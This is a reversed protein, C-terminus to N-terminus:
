ALVGRGVKTRALKEITISMTRMGYLYDALLPPLKGLELTIELTQTKADVRYEVTEIRFDSDVNENPLTVHIKDAALPPTTGYDIVTSTLTLSEAPDKLYALLAKARLNCENDSTLEEDTETLERLGYANQSGTDESTGTYSCNLFGFDGDWFIYSTAGVCNMILKLGSIQNWQPNGVKTWIGNPNHNADYMQSSGLALSILGWQLICKGELLSSINAQFYNASDPAFLIIYGYGGGLNGPMWAWVVFTQPKSLPDLTRYISAAGGGGPTWVRLCHSGERQRLSELELTGSDCTWGDLSESWSDLNAPFNKGQCGYVRIRNRIRLIDKRYESDEIKESLSVPSTKSNKPFFEFKGDPAVRFDYGIVGALDSSEAIYKLIDWVPSNEYELHTFTTDTNEVLETSDRVHSLGVYYDLLDKVIAEGKQNDYSKTVVKRFLKEGWCRGSVRIYNETPSSECRVEEVRCTIIQPLNTGRGIFISGDMGMTIPSTGGPSYKKDWNQLLVEFSSVEKTCGLHVRLDIVDGQPPTVSGFVIAAKPIEVSL